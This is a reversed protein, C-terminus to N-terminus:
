THKVVILFNIMYWGGQFKYKLATYQTTYSNCTAPPLSPSRLNGTLRSSPSIAKPSFFAVAHRTQSDGFGGQPELSQATLVSGSAPSSNMFRLIKVHASTMHKVSQTVGTGWELGVRVSVQQTGKPM